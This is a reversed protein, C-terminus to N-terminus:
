ELVNICNSNINKDCIMKGSSIDRIGRFPGFSMTQVLLTNHTYNNLFDNFKEKNVKILRGNDKIFYSGKDFCNASESYKALVEEDPIVVSLGSKNYFESPHNIYYSKEFYISSGGKDLCITNIRIFFYVVLVIVLIAIIIFISKKKM